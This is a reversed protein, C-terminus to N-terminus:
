LRETLQASLMGVGKTGEPCKGRIPPIPGQPSGQPTVDRFLGPQRTRQPRRVLRPLGARGGAPRAVVPLAFVARLAPRQAAHHRRLGADPHGDGRAAPDHLPHIRGRRRLRLDKKEKPVLLGNKFLHKTVALRLWTYMCYVGSALLILDLFLTMDNMQPKRRRKEAEEAQRELERRAEEKWERVFRVAVVALLAAGIVAFGITGCLAAIREGTWEGSAALQLYDRGMKIALYILYGGCLIYMLKRRNDFDNKKEPRRAAPEQPTEPKEKLGDM